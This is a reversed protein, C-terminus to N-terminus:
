AVTQIDGKAAASLAQVLAQQQEATMSGGQQYSVSFPRNYKEGMLQKSPTITNDLDEYTM